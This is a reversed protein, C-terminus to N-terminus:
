EDSSHDGPLFDILFCFGISSNSSSIGISINLIEVGRFNCKCEEGTCMFHDEPLIMIQSINCADMFDHSYLNYWMKKWIIIGHFYLNVWFLFGSFTCVAHAQIFKSDFLFNFVSNFYEQIVSNLWFSPFCPAQRWQGGRWPKSSIMGTPASVLGQGSARSSDTYCLYASFLSEVCGRGTAPLRGSALWM